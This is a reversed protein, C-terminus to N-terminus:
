AVGRALLISALDSLASPLATPSFGMREKLRRIDVWRDVFAIRDGQDSGSIIEAKTGALEEAVNNCLEALRTLAVPHGAGVNLVMDEGGSKLLWLFVKCVDDISVLDISHRGGNHLIITDGKLAKKLFLSVVEEYRAGSGFGFVNALRLIGYRFGSYMILKEALAKSWGYPDSPTLVSDECYPLPSIRGYVWYTSAFFVKVQTHSLANLIDGTFVVNQTIVDSINQKCMDYGKIGALHILVDIDSVAERLFTKEYLPGRRIEIDSQPDYAVGDRILAIVHHNEAILYPMLSSGIYGRAGTILIRM